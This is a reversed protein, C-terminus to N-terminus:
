RRGWPIYEVARPSCLLTAGWFLLATQVLLLLLMEVFNAATLSEARFSFVLVLLAIVAVVVEGTLLLAWTRRAEALRGAAAERSGYFYWLLAGLVGLAAAGAVVAQYTQTFQTTTMKQLVVADGMQQGAFLATLVWLLAGAVATVLYNLPPQRM